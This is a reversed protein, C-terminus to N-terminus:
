APPEKRRRRSVLILVVAAALVAAIAAGVAAFALPSTTFSASVSTPGNVTVTTVTSTGNADGGWSAFAQTWSSPQATLTIVTGLPAYVTETAGAPVTGTVAGYTFAVSGGGGAVIMLGPYFLATVNAPATMTVTASPSAGSANGSWSVFEWGTPARASVTAISGGDYWGAGSVNGRLAGPVVVVSLLYQTGYTVTITGAAAVKGVTGSSAGIRVGASEQALAVAYTYTRGADAWVTANAPISTNTGLSFYHVSPPNASLGSQLLFDFSVLYQHFYAGTFNDPGTVTGGPPGGLIWHEQPTSGNLLVPYSFSSGADVFYQSGAPVWFHSDYAQVLVAPVVSTSNDSVRYWFGFEYLHFYSFNQTFSANATGNFPASSLPSLAWIESGVNGVANPDLLLTSVSWATGPDAAYSTPSVSLNASRASGDLTYSVKPLAYGSGGNVINYSLTLEAKVTGAFVQTGWGSPVGVEGAAWILSANSPDLAAGFYDGYRCTVVTGSCGLTENKTGAVIVKPPDLQGSATGFVRGAAMLGPYDSASSYGFVVLLDGRGDVQLAPYLYYLGAAGVDFDQTVTNSTTNLEVLRICARAQTDGSPTCQDGLSFWLTGSSWIADQVRFDGSDLSYVSGRQLAKPPSTITRVSFNSFVVQVNPPTGTVQLYEISSVSTLNADASVLYEAANTGLVRAPHFSATDKYPGFIRSAPSPSGAVLDAKAIVWFQAGYYTYPSTLCTSFVNVSLIVTQSGVGLIPQDYCEGSGFHYLTWAAAPNSTNSVALIVQGTPTVPGCNSSYVGVDTISAFWRGSAADYQIKPDSLFENSPVGFFNLLSENKLFAGQKTWISLVLNVMEVVDGPGAAVQVDPPAIGAECAPLAYGNDSASLGTWNARLVPSSLAASPAAAVSAPPPSAAAAIGPLGEPGSLSPRAVSPEFVPAAAKPLAGEPSRALSSPAAAAMGPAPVFALSAVLLLGGVLGTVLVRSPSRLRACMDANPTGFPHRGAYAQAGSYRM